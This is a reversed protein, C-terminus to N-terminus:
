IPKPYNNPNITRNFCVRGSKHDWNEPYFSPYVQPIKDNTVQSILKFDACLQYSLDGTVIYDYQIGTQPDKPLNDFKLDSLLKPLQKNNQWFSTVYSELMQLDSIRREDLKRDRQMSPTGVLWFGIAVTILVAVGSIIAIQKPGSSKFNQRRLDWIYYGFVAVAVVLVTLVKLFFSVTLDGNLYNYLITILDVIITVASIFLTLYLLWKRARVERRTKDEKYDRGLLWCILIYVPFVVVLASTGWRIPDLYSSGYGYYQLVDPFRVNIYQFWLTIFSVVSVLLTIIGLLHMFVDKPTSKINEM